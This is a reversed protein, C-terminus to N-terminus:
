SKVLVFLSVLVCLKLIFIKFITQELMYVGDYLTGFLEIQDIDIGYGECNYHSLYSTSSLKFCQYIGPSFPTYLTQEKSMPESVVSSKPWTINNKSVSFKFGNPICDKSSTTIEYGSLLIARNTLCFSIYTEEPAQKGAWWYQGTVWDFANKAFTSHYASESTATFTFQSYYKDKYTSYLYRLVGSNSKYPFEM